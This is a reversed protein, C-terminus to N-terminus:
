LPLKPSMHNDFKSLASLLTWDYSFRCVPTPRSLCLGPALPAVRERNEVDMM